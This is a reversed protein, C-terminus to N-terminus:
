ARSDTAFVIVIAHQGEDGAPPLELRVDGGLRTVVARLLPLDVATVSRCAAARPETSLRQGVSQFIDEHVSADTARGAWRVQLALFGRGLEVSATVVTSPAATELALGVALEVARTLWRPSARITPLLVTPEDTQIVMMPARHRWRMVAERLPERPDVDDADEAFAAPSLQTFEHSARALAHAAELRVSAPLTDGDPTTLALMAQVV